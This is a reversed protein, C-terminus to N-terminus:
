QQDAVFGFDDDTKAAIPATKAAVAADPVFGFDAEPKVPVPAVTGSAAPEVAKPQPEAKLLAPGLILPLDRFDKITAVGPM